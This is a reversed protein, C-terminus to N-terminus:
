NGPLGNLAPLLEYVRPLWLCCVVFPFALSWPQVALRSDPGPAPDRGHMHCPFECESGLASFVWLSYGPPFVALLLSYLALMVSQRGGAGWEIKLMLFYPESWLMPEWGEWRQSGKIHSRISYHGWVMFNNENVSWVIIKSSNHIMIYIDLICINSIDIGLPTSVLFSLGLTM